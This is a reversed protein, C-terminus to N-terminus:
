IPFVKGLHIDTHTFLLFEQVTFDEDLVTFFRYLQHIVSRFIDILLPVLFILNSILRNFMFNWVITLLVMVCKRCFFWSHKFLTLSQGIELPKVQIFGYNVTIDFVLYRLKIGSSHILAVIDLNLRRSSAELLESPLLLLSTLLGLLLMNHLRSLQLGIMVKHMNLILITAETFLAHQGDAFGSVVGDIHNTPM